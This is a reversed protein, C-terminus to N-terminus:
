IVREAFQNILDQVRLAHYLDPIFTREDYGGLFLHNSHVLARIWGASVRASPFTSSPSYDSGCFIETWNMGEQNCRLTDPQENSYKIAGREFRIDFEFSERAGSSVRSALISGIAGSRRERLIAISCLDSASPVNSFETGMCAGILELEPGLFSDILSLIHSGLDAMAGGAPTQELRSRRKERYAEDLYGRHCYSASFHLPRGFDTTSLLKRAERIATIQLYQFGCWVQKNHSQAIEKLYASEKSSACVPKEIFIRKVTKMDLVRVLHEFHASNPGLIYVTDFDDRQWFEDIEVATNFGHKIAFSTASDHSRSAVVSKEVSFHETYYHPLVDLAFSHAEAIAGAGLFAVQTRQM